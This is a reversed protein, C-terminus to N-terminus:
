RHQSWASGLVKRPGRFVENPCLTSFSLYLSSIESTCNFRMTKIFYYVSTFRFHYTIRVEIRKYFGWVKLSKHNEVVIELDIFKFSKRHKWFRTRLIKDKTRSQHQHSGIRWWFIDGVVNTLLMLLTKFRRPQFMRVQSIIENSRPRGLKVEAFIRRYYSSYNVFHNLSLKICLDALDQNNSM